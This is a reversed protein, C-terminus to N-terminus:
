TSIRNFQLGTSLDGFKAHWLDKFYSSRPVWPGRDGGRPLTDSDKAAKIYSSNLNLLPVELVGEKENVRPTVSSMGKNRMQKLMRVWLQATADAGLTWSANTYGFVFTLNPLDQLLAGRWVFKQNMQFPEGDVNLTAGGGFRMKLGTATIIIDPEITKGSTLKISTADMDEITDTVMDCNGKRLAAFFDGGPRVCANLLLNL